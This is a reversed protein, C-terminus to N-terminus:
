IEEPVTETVIKKNLYKELDLLGYGEYEDIFTIATGKAGARGTRGIRHVYDEPDDPLNYNFVHTIGDVHIGRGAVDTAVLISKEQKKFKDLTALRKNQAVEGSLLMANLGLRNLRQALDRTTDRRNGFIIARGTDPARLFKALVQDKETEQVLYFKQDVTDTAVSEPEIEVQQPKHTWSESLAIVDFPYTASFLQTQRM